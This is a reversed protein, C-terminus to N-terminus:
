KVADIAAKAVVDMYDKAEKESDFCPETNIMLKHISGDSNLMYMFGAYKKSEKDQAAKISIGEPYSGDIELCTLLSLGM